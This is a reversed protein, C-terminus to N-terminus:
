RVPWRGARSGKKMLFYIEGAKLALGADLSAMEIKEGFTEHFAGAKAKGVGL